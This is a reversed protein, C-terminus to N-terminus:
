LLHPSFHDSRHDASDELLSLALARAEGEVGASGQRGSSYRRDPTSMPQVADRWYKIYIPGDM